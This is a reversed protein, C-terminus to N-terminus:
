REGKEYYTLKLQIQYRAKGDESVQFLYGSTTVEIKQATRYEGLEPLHKPKQNQQKVWVSFNEYWELNDTNQIIQDGWFVRSALVFDFQKVTSGDLYQKVIEPGPIADISYTKAEEPLCDVGLRGDALPPYSRLWGRIAEIITKSM